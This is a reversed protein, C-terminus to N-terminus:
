GQQAPALINSFTPIMKKEILFESVGKEM